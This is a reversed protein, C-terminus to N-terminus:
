CKHKGHQSPHKRDDGCLPCLDRGLIEDSFSCWTIEAHPVVMEFPKHDDFWSVGTGMHQMALLRGFEEANPREGDAKEARDALTYVGAGGPNAAALAAWMEGALAYANPPPEPAYDYWDEGAGPLALAASPHEDCYDAYACVWMALAAGRLFGDRFDDDSGITSM